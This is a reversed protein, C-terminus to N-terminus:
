LDTRPSTASSTFAHRRWGAGDHGQEVGELTEGGTNRPGADQSERVEDQQGQLMHGSDWGVQVVEVDGSAWQVRVRSLLLERKAPAGPRGGGVSRLAPCARSPSLCAPPDTTIIWPLAAALGMVSFQGPSAWESGMGM